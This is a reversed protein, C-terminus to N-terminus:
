VWITNLRLQHKAFVRPTSSLSSYDAHTSACMAGRGLSEQITASSLASFISTACGSVRPLSSVVEVSDGEGGKGMSLLSREGSIQIDQIAEGENTMTRENARATTM